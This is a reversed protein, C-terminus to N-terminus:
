FTDASLAASITQFGFTEAMPLGIRCYLYTSGSWTTAPIVVNFRTSSSPSGGNTIGTTKTILGTYPAYTTPQTYNNSNIRTGSTSNADIWDTSISNGIGLTSTNTADEVRYFLKINEGGLSATNSSYSPTSTPSNITFTVSSFSTSTNQPIKWAFTAYRYTGTTSVVSSYNVTNLSAGYLLITYNLYATSSGGKAQILGNAIQLEGVYSGSSLVQSHDYLPSLTSYSAAGNLLNSASFSSTAALEYTGPNLGSWIRTGVIASNSNLTPITTTSFTSFALANSLGDIIASIPTANSSTSGNINNAQITLPISTSFVSAVNQGNITRSTFSVSSNLKNNSTNGGPITTETASIVGSSSYNILPNKYFYNGLNTVTFSTNFQPTGIIVNVGCITATSVTGLAFSTISPSGPVGTLNEYYFQYPSGSYTNTSGTSSLGTSTRRLTVTYQESSPTLVSTGLTVTANAEQYFGDYGTATGGSGSSSYYDNVASPTITLGNTTVASPITGIPYSANFTVSPGSITNSGTGYSASLTMSNGSGYVGRSTFDNVIVKFSSTTRSTQTTEVILNPVVSQTKVSYYTNNTLNTNPFINSINYSSTPATFAATSAYITPSAVSYNNNVSNKAQVYVNYSADPYINSSITTTASNVPAGPPITPTNQGPASGMVPTLGVTIAGGYRVNNSVSQYNLLYTSVPTATTSNTADGYSPDYYKITISNSLFSLETVNRPASPSGAGVYGSADLYSYNNNTNNNKYYVSVYLKQTNTLSAITSDYFLAARRTGSDNGFITSIVTTTQTQQTSNPTGLTGATNAKAFIVGTIPSNSSGLSNPNSNISYNNIYDSSSANVVVSSIRTKNGAGDVTGYDITLQSILPLYTSAASGVMIQNPYSWPIFIYSSTITPSGFVVAPPANIFNTLIWSDITSIPNSYGVINSVYINGNVSLDSSVSVNGNFSSDGSVFLRNNLSVDGAVTLKSNLSADKSVFIRNNLSVDGAVTLKSNLSADKSVFIRNNLSVDGAVTLKSNLSTDNSVFLYNNLSVDGDV